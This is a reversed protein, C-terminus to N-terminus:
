LGVWEPIFREVHLRITRACERYVELGSGIPDDLDADACLLRAAPGVGPYRVALADAHGRTMAIVEDAAALLQPNVPRSLHRGLDAGFEAAAEVAEAAAPAGGYTAVGASLMWVGRAPLDDAPCGLREALLAKALGEALPSRCTNGTCIFLVLRASLRQLEEVGFAGPEVLRWGAEDAAITTPREGTKVEGASVVLGVSDSVRDTVAAATPLFTDVVLVPLDTGPYLADFLPHDPCRFRIL